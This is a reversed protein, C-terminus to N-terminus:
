DYFNHKFTLYDDIILQDLDIKFFDLMILYNMLTLFHSLNAFVYNFIIFNIKIFQKKKFNRKAVLYSIRIIITPIRPDSALPTLKGASMITKVLIISEKVCNPFIQGFYNKVINICILFEVKIIKKKLEFKVIFAVFLEM